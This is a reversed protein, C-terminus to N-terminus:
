DIWSSEKQKLNVFLIPLTGKNEIILVITRIYKRQYYGAEIWLPREVKSGFCSILVTM